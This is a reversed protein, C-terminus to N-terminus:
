CCPKNKAEPEGKGEPKQNLTVPNSGSSFEFKKDTGKSKNGKEKLFREQIETAMTTFTEDVCVANKASVELFPVDYKKALDKGEDTTM